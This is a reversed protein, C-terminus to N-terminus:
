AAGGVAPLVREAILELRDPPGAPMLVAWAAGAARLGRLFAVLGDADGSWVDPTLGRERRRGRLAEVDDRDRGVLVIGGWTPPVTRGAEDAARRLGAVRREFGPLDVGWGNWADALRGAIAVVADSLGGVWVPPGDPRHPPPLLPGRVAPVLASGEWPRGAFLERLARVTDALHAHRVARERYAIGYADHERKSLEDGTGVALVLRGGSAGDLAAALSALLGAPRLSARTVLTGLAVESTAAAVAALTAFVEFAPQEAPQHLPLLHDFAFLGDFGLAEARRAFGLVREADDTFLPLMVGVRLREDGM